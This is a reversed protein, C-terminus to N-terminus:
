EDALWDGQSRDGGCRYNQRSDQQDNGGWVTCGRADGNRRCFRGFLGDSLRFWLRAGARIAWSQKFEEVKFEQVEGQVKVTKSPYIGKGSKTVKLAHVHRM